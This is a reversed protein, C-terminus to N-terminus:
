SYNLTPFLPSTLQTVLTAGIGSVPRKLSDEGESSDVQRVSNQSSVPTDAAAERPIPKVKTYDKYFDLGEIPSPQPKSM